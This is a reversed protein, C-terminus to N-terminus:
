RDTLVAVDSVKLGLEQLPKVTEMVSTGSTVLDEIIICKQGEKYM